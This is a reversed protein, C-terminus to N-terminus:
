FRVVKAFQAFRSASGAGYSALSPMGFLKPLQQTWNAKEYGIITMLAIVMLVVVVFMNVVDRVLSWGLNTIHSNYFGNYGLVPIVVVQILLLILKGIAGTIVQIIGALTLMTADIPNALFKTFLDGDAAHSFHLPISLLLVAVAFATVRKHASCWNAFRRVCEM